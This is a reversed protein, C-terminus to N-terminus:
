GIFKVSRNFYGQIAFHANEDDDAELYVMM